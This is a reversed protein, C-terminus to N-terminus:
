VQHFYNHTRTHRQAGRNRFYFFFKTPRRTCKCKRTDVIYPARCIHIPLRVTLLVFANRIGVACVWVFNSSNYIYLHISPKRHLCCMTDDVRCLMFLIAGCVTYDHVLILCLGPHLLALSVYEYLLIFYYPLGFRVTAGNQIFISKWNTLQQQQQLVFLIWRIVTQTHTHAEWSVYRTYKRLHQQGSTGNDTWKKQSILDNRNPKVVKFFILNVANSNGSFYIVTRTRVDLMADCYANPSDVAFITRTPHVEISILGRHSSHSSWTFKIWEHSRICQYCSSSLSSLCLCCRFNETPQKM